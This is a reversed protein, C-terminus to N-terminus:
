TYLIPAVITKGRRKDMLFFAQKPEEYSAKISLAFANYGINSGNSIFNGGDLMQHYHGLCDIDAHKLKNWQNIAKAIPLSIGSVGGAYRIAHGHSFRIVKTYINLYSHYGESVIFKVRKENRFHNALQHYMYYELSNGAETSIRRDRNIRSHNGSHCPVIIKKLSKDKLLFENGSALLNQAFITEDIPSLLNNELM